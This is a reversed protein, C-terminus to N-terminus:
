VTGGGENITQLQLQFDALVYNYEEELAAIDETNHRISAKNWGAALEELYPVYENNLAQVAAAKVEEATPEPLTNDVWVYMPSGDEFYQGWPGGFVVTNDEGYTVAEGYTIIENNNEDLTKTVPVLKYKATIM